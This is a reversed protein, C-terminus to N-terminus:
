EPLPLWCRAATTASCRGARRRPRRRRRRPPRTGSRRCRPQERSPVRPLSWCCWWWSWAPSVSGGCAPEIIPQSIMMSTAPSTGNSVHCRTGGARSRCRPAGEPSNAASFTRAWMTATLRKSATFWGPPPPCLRRAVTRFLGFDAQEIVQITTADVGLARRWRSCGQAWAMCRTRATSRAAWRMSGVPRWATQPARSLKTDLTTRWWPAPRGRARMARVLHPATPGPDILRGAPLSYMTDQRATGAGVGVTTSRVRRLRALTFEPHSSRNYHGRRM